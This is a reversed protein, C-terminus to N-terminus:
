LIMESKLNPLLKTYKNHKIQTTSVPHSITLFQQMFIVFIDRTTRCDSIIVRGHEACSTDTDYSDVPDTRACDAAASESM